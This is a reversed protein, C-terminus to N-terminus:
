AAASTDAAFRADLERLSGNVWGQGLAITGKRNMVAAAYEPRAKQARLFSLICLPSPEAQRWLTANRRADPHSLSDLWFCITAMPNEVRAIIDQVDGISIGKLGGNQVVLDFFWCFDRLTVARGLSAAWSAAFMEARAAIQRAASIQQARMAENGMLAALETKLIPALRHRQGQWSRIIPLAEAVPLHVARWLFAGYRPMTTLVAAEGVARILPQLTGQGINWQLIGASIGMGDFDGASASWPDGASEFSGTTELAVRLWATDAM